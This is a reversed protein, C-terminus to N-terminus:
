VTRAVRQISTAKGNNLEILVSNFEVPRGPTITHKVPMQTLFNKLIPEVDVGIASDKLGVFGVDSIYATSEKLIREDATPVHTHTGVM